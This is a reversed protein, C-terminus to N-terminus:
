PQEESPPSDSMAREVAAGYASLANTWFRDFYERVGALGRPDIGYIHRTGQAQVTVLGADKLVKLHQSVAPRSVSM